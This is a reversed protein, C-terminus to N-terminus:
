AEIFAGSNLINRLADQVKIFARKYLTECVYIIDNVTIFLYHLLRKSKIFIDQVAGNM